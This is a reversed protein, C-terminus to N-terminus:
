RELDEGNSFDIIPNDWAESMKCWKNTLELINDSVLSAPVDEIRVIDNNEDVYIQYLGFTKDNKVIRYEWSM